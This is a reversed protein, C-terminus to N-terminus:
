RNFFLSKLGNKPTKSPFTLSEPAYTPSPIPHYKPINEDPFLIGPSPLLPYLSLTISHRSPISLLFLSIQSFLISQYKQLFQQAFHISFSLFYFQYNTIIFLFSTSPSRGAAPFTLFISLRGM